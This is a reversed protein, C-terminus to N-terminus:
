APFLKASQASGLISKILEEVDKATKSMDKFLTQMEKNQMGQKNPNSCVTSTVQFYLDFDCVNYSNFKNTKVPQLCVKDKRSPDKAKTRHTSTSRSLDAQREPEQPYRHSAM